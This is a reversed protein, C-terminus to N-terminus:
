RTKFCATETSSRGGQCFFCEICLAPASGQECAFIHRYPHLCMTMEHMTLMNADLLQLHSHLEQVYKCVIANKKIFLRCLLCADQKAQQVILRTSNTHLWCSTYSAVLALNIEATDCSHEHIDNCTAISVDFREYTCDSLACGTAPAAKLDQLWWSTCSEAFIPRQLPERDLFM